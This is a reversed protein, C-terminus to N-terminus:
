NKTLVEYTPKVKLQQLINVAENIYADKSLEAHWVKRKKALISDNAVVSKEFEPSQFILSTKFDKLADFKKAKENHLDIDAKYQAYQLPVNYDNQNDKMWKAQEEILAFQTTANVRNQSDKITKELNDYGKWVNYKAPQIKDWAMPNKEDREGIEMYSYRTPIVVDSSVGNLQTSGGNIRYFKQITLKLSGLDETTGAYQNLEVFNQVTGKGYTQKSGIVVARKYDQMAAAFIESASASLENVLIVLSGNWLTGGQTDDKIMPNENRYKVQVVPGKDIFLGSIEIATKLSGGGNDRLDIAIGSVGENALRKIEKYMDQYSDHFSNGEMDFYFAPLHIIGYKKGDKNVIASKVFTEEIEVIDRILTIVKITGDMKKVTLRVETGKKGKIFEIADDLRMGVIDLPEANGQAVKLIIDGVELSGERWAPGGSILEFVKTYEGERQLRAGIGELKGSISIDFRKKIIPDFYNTHPEFQATITNIFMTFYDEERLEKIRDQLDDMNQKVKEVAEKQLAEFTKARYLSDNKQADKEAQEKDYLTGLYRMKLQKEWITKMESENAPFSQKDYDTNYNDVTNIDFPSSLIQDYWVKSEDLRQSYRNYVLNYFSLDNKLIQDDIQLKYQSFEDIDSQYFYHKTPDLLDIFDNYIGESLKDDFPKPEYHGETLVYTLVQLITREKNPDNKRNYWNFSLLFGASLVIVILYKFNRKMFLLLKDFM